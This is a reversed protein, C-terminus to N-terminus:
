KFIEQDTKYVVNILKLFLRFKNKVIKQIFSIEKSVYLLIESNHFMQLRQSYTYKYSIQLFMDRQCMNYRYKQLLKGTQCYVYDYNAKYKIITAKKQRVPKLLWLTSWYFTIIAMYVKLLAVFIPIKLSFFWGCSLSM